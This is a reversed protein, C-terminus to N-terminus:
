VSATNMVSSNSELTAQESIEAGVIINYYVHRASQSLPHPPPSHQNIQWAIQKVFTEYSGM